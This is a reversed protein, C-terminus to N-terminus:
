PGRGSARAGDRAAVWAAIEARSSAGLKRIIHHVHVETTKESIGLRRGIQRNTCGQRVLGAVEAERPTLPEGPPGAPPGTGARAALADRALGLAATTSLARGAREADDSAEAGLTHRVRLRVAGVAGQEEPPLPAALRDRAAVAAGLLRAAAEPTDRACAVGAAAELCQAIGRVDDTALFAALAEGLLDAAERVRGRSVEVTALAWASCGIAWAYGLERFAHLSERLLGAAREPERRRRALLGLDYRSWAVGSLNGAREHLRGAEEHFAVAAAVRGRTRAVHGRFATGIARLRVSGM